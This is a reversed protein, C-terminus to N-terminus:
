PHSAPAPMTGEVHADKLFQSVTEKWQLPSHMVIAAHGVGAFEKFWKRGPVADFVLRAEVLRARPIPPATCFCSRAACAPPTNSRITALAM